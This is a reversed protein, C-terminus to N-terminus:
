RHGLLIDEISNAPLSRLTGHFCSALLDSRFEVTTHPPSIAMDFIPRVARHGCVFQCWGVTHARSVVCSKLELVWADHTGISSPTATKHILKDGCGVAALGAM